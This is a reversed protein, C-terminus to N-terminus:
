DSEEKPTQDNDDHKLNNEQITNIEQFEIIKPQESIEDLATHSTIQEVELNVSNVQILREPIPLDDECYRCKQSNLRFLNLTITNRCEQCLRGEPPPVNM